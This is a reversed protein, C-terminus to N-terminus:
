WGAHRSWPRAALPRRASSRSRPDAALLEVLGARLLDDDAVLL